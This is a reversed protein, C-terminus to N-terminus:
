AALLATRIQLYRSLSLFERGAVLKKISGAFFASATNNNNLCGLRIAISNTAGTYSAEYELATTSGLLRVTSGDVTIGVVAETGRFDTTGLNTLSSTGARGGLRGTTSVSLSIGTPTADQAGAIIQTSAIVAPVTVLAVIFNAGSGANYSTLLNDDTGDFKAGTTQWTPKLTGTAQIAPIGPVLKCSVNDLQASAAGTFSMFLTTGIATFFVRKTVGPAVSTNYYDTSGAGASGGYFNFNNAGTNTVVVSYSQGSVITVNQRARTAEGAPSILDLAGAANWAISAPATSADTWGTINSDFTGNSVLESQGALVQALTQGRWTRQDLALGIVEGAGDALTPGINEQFHRDTKTFDYYLGASQAAMFNALSFREPRGVIGPWAPMVLGAPTPM